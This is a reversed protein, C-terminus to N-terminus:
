ALMGFSLSWFTGSSGATRLLSARAPDRLRETRAVATARAGGLGIEDPSNRVLLFTLPAFLLLIVAASALYYGRWGIRLLLWMTVPVIVFSAIAVGSNVIAVALGRLRDFWRTALIGGTLQLTFGFGTGAVLGFALYLQWTQQIVATALAGAGVLGMGVTLVLRAGHRDVLRGVFPQLVGIMASATAAAGSVRGVDWGRDSM